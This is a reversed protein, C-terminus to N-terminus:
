DAEDEGWILSAKKKLVLLASTEALAKDKRALDKRLSKNESQLQRIKIASQKSPDKKLDNVMTRKWEELQHSYLGHQRCYISRATEDLSATALLHELRMLSNVKRNDLRQEKKELFNGLRYNRTWRQLTSYGSNNIQAIERVSHEKSSLVKKVISLKAETSLHGM